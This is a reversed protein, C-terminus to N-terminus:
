SASSTGSAADDLGASGLVTNIRIYLSLIKMHRQKCLSEISADLGDCLENKFLTIEFLMQQLIKLRLTRNEKTM